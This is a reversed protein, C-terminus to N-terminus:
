AIARAGLIGLLEFEAQDLEARRRLWAVSHGSRATTPEDLAAVIEERDQDTESHDSPPSDDVSETTEAPEASTARQLRSTLDRVLRRHAPALPQGARVRAMAGAMEEPDIGGAILAARVSSVAADTGTYAPFTVVSVDYLKVELLTRTILDNERDYIVQDKVVEFGFSMQDVDGRQMSRMLDRAWNAEPPTIEVALGVRDESLTLTSAKNRGLVYDPNHNFLARIDAEKLTKTFAGPAIREVFSDGWWDSIPVSDQNFVAAHGTIKRTEGDLATRLEFPFERIEVVTM